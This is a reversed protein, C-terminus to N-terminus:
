MSSGLDLRRLRPCKGEKLLDMIAGFDHLGRSSNLNLDKLGELGGGKLGRTLYGLGEEAMLEPRKGEMSMHSLDLTQLNKYGGESALELVHLHSVHTVHLYELGGHQRQGKLLQM